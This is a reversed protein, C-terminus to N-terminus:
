YTCKLFEYVNYIEVLKLSGENQQKFEFIVPQNCYEKYMYSKRGYSTNIMEYYDGYEHVRQTILLLVSDKQVSNLLDLFDDMAGTNLSDIENLLKLSLGDYDECTQKLSKITLDYKRKQIKYKLVEKKASDSISLFSKTKFKFYGGGGIVLFSILLMLLNYANKKIQM